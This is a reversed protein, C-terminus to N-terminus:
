IIPIIKFYRIQFDGFSFTGLLFLQPLSETMHWTLLITAELYSYRTKRTISRWLKIVRDLNCQMLCTGLIEDRCVDPLEEMVNDQVKAFKIKM